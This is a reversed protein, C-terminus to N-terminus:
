PEARGMGVQLEWFGDQPTVGGQELRMGPKQLSSGGGERGGRTNEPPEPRAARVLDSTFNFDPNRNRRGENGPEHNRGTTGAGLAGFGPTGGAPFAGSGGRIEGKEWGLRHQPDSDGGPPLEQLYSPQKPTELAVVASGPLM